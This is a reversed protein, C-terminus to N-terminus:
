INYRLHKSIFPNNNELLYKFNNEIKSCKEKFKIAENLPIEFWEGERKYHSLLHHLATEIKVAIESEYTDFLKLKTPNGTQIQKLRKEPHKSTGIKFTSDELSQILYVQKM